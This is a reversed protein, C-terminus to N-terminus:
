KIELTAGQKCEFDNKITVSNSADFVVNGSKIIVPGESKSRTVNSGVYINKGSFTRNGTYEENQIYVGEIDEIIVPLHNKKTICIQLDEMSVSEPIGFDYYMTNQYSSSYHTLVDCYSAGNDQKSTLSVILDDSSSRLSLSGEGLFMQYDTIDELIQISDTYTNLEPDGMLNLTYLVWQYNNDGLNNSSVYCKSEKLADGISLRNRFIRKYFEGNYNSSPGLLSYNGDLGERTSGLYAIINSNSARLLAEGLCPVTKDFANTFCATTAIITPSPNNLLSAQNSLFTGRELWWATELGHCNMHIHHYGNNIQAQLNTSNLEYDSGGEFDTETDYFRYKAVNSWYPQIYTSFMNESQGAMNDGEESNAGSLLMRNAWNNRPPNKEYNVIRQVLLNAQAASNVPLRGIAVNPFFNTNDTSEGILNDGDANWDLRGTLNAYYLDTPVEEASTADSITNTAYCKQVPVITEDGGLLVYNLGNVYYDYICQKIKLQNSTTESAYRAYIEDVTVIKAKVGKITKWAALPAFANKLNSATIILYKIGETDVTMTSRPIPNASPEYIEDPNFLINQLIGTIVDQRALQQSDSVFEETEININVGCAWTIVKSAANYSLVPVKFCAYRYCELTQERLLEVELPYNVQPYCIQSSLISTSIQNTAMYTPNSSLTVGEMTLTNGVSFSFSKLKQKEPLLINVIKYPIAPKLTDEDFALDYTASTIIKNGRYNTITFNERDFTVTYTKTTQAVLCICSLLYLGIFLIRKM